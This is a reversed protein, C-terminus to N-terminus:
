QLSEEYYFSIFLSSYLCYVPSPSPVGSWYEQRSFGMSRLAQHAATWPTVLLRVRSLSQVSSFQILFDVGPMKSNKETHGTYKQSKM